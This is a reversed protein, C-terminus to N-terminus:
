TKPRAKPQIAVEDVEYDIYAEANSLRKTSPLTLILPPPLLAECMMLEYYLTDLLFSSMGTHIDQATHSLMYSTSHAKLKAKKHEIRSNVGQPEFHEKAVQDMTQGKKNVPLQQEILPKRCIYSVGGSKNAQYLRRTQTSKMMALPLHVRRVPYGIAESLEPLPQADLYDFLSAKRFREPLYRRFKHLNIIDELTFLACGAESMQRQTFDYYITILRDKLINHCRWMLQSAFPSKAGLSDLVLIKISGNKFIELYFGYWHGEDRLAVAKTYPFHIQYMQNLFTTLEHENVDIKLLLPNFIYDKRKQVMQYIFAADEFTRMGSPTYLSIQRKSYFHPNRISTLRHLQSNLPYTPETIEDLVKLKSDYPLYSQIITAQESKLAFLLIQKINALAYENYETQTRLYQSFLQTMDHEFYYDEIITDMLFISNMLVNFCVQAQQRDKSVAEIYMRLETVASETSEHEYLKEYAPIILKEVLHETRISRHEAIYTVILQIQDNEVQSAPTLAYAFVEEWLELPLRLPKEKFIVDLIKIFQIKKM